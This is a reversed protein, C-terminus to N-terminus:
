SEASILLSLSIRLAEAWFLPERTPFEDTAPTMLGAIPGFLGGAKSKVGALSSTDRANRDAIL